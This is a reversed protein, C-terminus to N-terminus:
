GVALSGHFESPQEALICFVGIPTVSSELWSMTPCISLLLFVMFGLHSNLWPVFCRLLPCLFNCSVVSTLCAAWLLLVLFGLLSNLWSTAWGLAFFCSLFVDSLWIGSSFCDLFIDPTSGLLFLFKLCFDFGSGLNAILCFSDLFLVCWEMSQFLSDSGTRMDYPSTVWARLSVMSGPFGM